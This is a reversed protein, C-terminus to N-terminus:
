IFSAVVNGIGNGFVANYNKGPSIPHMLTVSGTMVVEGEYLHTDFESLKNALWTLSMAPNGLVTASCASDLLVGNEELFVGITRLDLDEVRTIKSGLIIKGCAANDAISEQITKSLPQCRREVIEIAPIIGEVAHLAQAVTVGPGALDRKMVFALEVEIVPSVMLDSVKIPVGEQLMNHDFIHGYDPELIGRQKQVERNTLGVKKGVIKWGLDLKKKVVAMQVEYADQLSLSPYESIVPAIPQRTIEAQFFRDALDAIMAYRASGNSDKM